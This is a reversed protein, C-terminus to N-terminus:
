SATFPMRPALMVPNRGQRFFASLEKGALPFNHWVNSVFCAFMFCFLVREKDSSHQPKLSSLAVSKVYQLGSYHRKCATKLTPQDPSPSIYFVTMDHSIEEM